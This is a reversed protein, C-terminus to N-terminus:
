TVSGAIIVNLMQKSLIDSFMVTELQRQTQQQRTYLSVNVFDNGTKMKGENIRNYKMYYVSNFIENDNPYLYRASRLMYLAYKMSADNVYGFEYVVRRQLNEFVPSIFGIVYESNPLFSSYNEQAEKELLDLTEQSLRLENERQLMKLLIERNIEMVDDPKPVMSYYTKNEGFLEFGVRGSTYELMKAAGFFQRTKVKPPPRITSFVVDANQCLEGFALLATQKENSPTLSIRISKLNELVVSL